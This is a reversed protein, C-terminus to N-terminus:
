VFVFDDYEQYGVIFVNYKNNNWFFDKEYIKSFFCIYM